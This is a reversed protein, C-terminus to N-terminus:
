PLPIRGTHLSFLLCVAATESRLRYRGLSVPVAGLGLMADIETDDFGGEPGVIGLVSDTENIGHPASPATERHALYVTSYSPFLSLLSEFGVVESVDPFYPFGSQKCAAVAKKLLRERKREGAGGGNRWVCRASRFPIFKRIGLETCKEVALDMRHAKTVALALDLPPPPEAQLHSRIELECREGDSSVLVAEYIGGRGDLLTVSGGVRVRAVRVMHHSEAPALCVRGRQAAGPTIVFYGKHTM